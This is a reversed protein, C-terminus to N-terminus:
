GLSHYIPSHGIFWSIFNITHIIQHLIQLLRPLQVLQSHNNHTDVISWIWICLCSIYWIDKCPGSPQIAHTHTHIAWLKNLKISLFQYSNITMRSSPPSTPITLVDSSNQEQFKAGVLKPFSLLVTVAADWLFSAEDRGSMKAENRNIWRDCLFAM